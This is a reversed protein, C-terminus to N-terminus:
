NISRPLVSQTEHGSQGYRLLFYVPHDPNQFFHKLYDPSLQPEHPGLDICVSELAERRGLLPGAPGPAKCFLFRIYPGKGEGM